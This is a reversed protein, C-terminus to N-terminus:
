RGALVERVFPVTLARGRSLSAQDIKDLVALLVCLDRRERRLVFEIVAAPLDLGRQAARATLVTAKGSDDLERM